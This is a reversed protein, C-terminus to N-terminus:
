LKTLENLFSNINAKAANENAIQIRKVPRLSDNLSATGMKEITIEKVLSNSKFLSYKIKVICDATFSFYPQEQKIIETNLIWGSDASNKLGSFIKSGEISDRLANSLDENSVKSILFPNTESGGISEAVFIPENIKRDSDFGKLTMGEKSAPFACNGLALVGVIFIIKMILKM